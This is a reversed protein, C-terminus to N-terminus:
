KTLETFYPSLAAAKRNKVESYWRTVAQRNAPAYAAITQGGLDLAYFDRPSWVAPADGITDTRGGERQAFAAPDPQTKLQMVSMDWLSQSATLDVHSARVLLTAAPPIAIEKAQARMELITGWGMKDAIDTDLLSPVDLMMLANADGPVKALLPDFRTDARLSATVVAFCLVTLCALTPCSKM